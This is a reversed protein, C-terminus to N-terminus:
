SAPNHKALFAEVRKLFDVANEPKAFGHGEDPYLVYEHPRGAKRLAEHLRTSQSPPVRPRGQRPRPPAPDPHRAGPRAAVGARSRIKWRGPDPRALRSLLAPRDVAAPNYKLMRVFTPCERSASRAAISKPTASRRGCRRMAATLPAWSACGSRISWAGAPWGASATTSITRCRAASNARRRTSSPRATAPRAASIPSSCSMAAIPSSSSGPSM